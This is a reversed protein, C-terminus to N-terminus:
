ANGEGGGQLLPGDSHYAQSHCSSIRLSTGRKRREGSIQHSASLWPEPSSKAIHGPGARSLAATTWGPGRGAAPAQDLAM